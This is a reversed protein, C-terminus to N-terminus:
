YIENYAACCESTMQAEEPDSNNKYLSIWIQFLKFISCDTKITLCYLVVWCLFLSSTYIVVFTIKVRHQNYRLFVTASLLSLGTVLDYPSYHPVQLTSGRQYFTKSTLPSCPSSIQKIVTIIALLVTKCVQFMVKIKHLITTRGAHM